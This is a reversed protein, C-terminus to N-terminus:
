FTLGVNLRLLKINEGQDFFMQFDAGLRIAVSGSTGIDVGVGAMGGWATNSFGDFREHQLGGLIHLYPEAATGRSSMSFRPGVTATYFEQKFDGDKDRHYAGDVELTTTGSGAFSVYFGLPASGGGEELSKLYAYGLSFRAGDQAAATTGLVVLSAMIALTRRM